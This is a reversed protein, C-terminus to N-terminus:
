QKSVSQDEMLGPNTFMQVRIPILMTDCGDRIPWTEYEYKGFLPCSKKLIIFGGTAWFDSQNKKFTCSSTQDNSSRGYVKWQCETIHLVSFRIELIPAAKLIIETKNANLPSSKHGKVLISNIGDIALKSVTAFLHVVKINWGVSVEFYCILYYHM